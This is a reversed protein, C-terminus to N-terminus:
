RRKTKRKRFNRYSIEDLLQEKWKYIDTFINNNNVKLAFSKITKYMFKDDISDILSKLGKDVYKYRRINEKENIKEVIKIQKEKLVVNITIEADDNEFMDELSQIEDNIDTKQINNIKKVYDEESQRKM